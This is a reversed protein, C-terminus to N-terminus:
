LGARVPAPFADSSLELRPSRPAPHARSRARTQAPHTAPEAKSMEVGSRAGLGESGPECRALARDKQAAGLRVEASRGQSSWLGSSLTPFSKSHSSENGEEKGEEM